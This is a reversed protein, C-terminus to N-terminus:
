FGLVFVDNATSNTGEFLGATEIAGANAGGGDVAGSDADVDGVLARGGEVVGM